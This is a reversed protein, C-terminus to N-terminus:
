YMASGWFSCYRVGHCEGRLCEDSDRVRLPSMVKRNKPGLVRNYLAKPAIKSALPISSVRWFGLCAVDLLRHEAGCGSFFRRMVGLGRFGLGRCGSVRFM